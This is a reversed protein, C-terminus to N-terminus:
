GLPRPQKHEPLVPLETTNVLIPADIDKAREILMEKGKQTIAFMPVSTGAQLVPKVLDRVTKSACGTIIDMKEIFERADGYKLGTLHAGILIINVNYEKEIERLEGADRPATVSVAINKYGLECAKWLGMVQDIIATEKDLVVGGRSEIGDIIETIPETEILGSMLAGMGQVLSPDSTIVTGAGDCVTVTSDILGRRLATMMIESAGFNVFVGYDFRRKPTFMGIERIRYEMNKKAEERTLKSVQAVKSFVPCWDAIPEGVEVVKGDKVVVRTRGFLEMVHPM